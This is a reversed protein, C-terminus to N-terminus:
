WPNRALTHRAARAVFADDSPDLEGCVRDLADTIEEPAHRSVFEDVARSFLQSRNLKLRKALLEARNFVDDPVSIATKM